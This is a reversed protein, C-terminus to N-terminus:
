VHRHLVAYSLAGNSEYFAARFCRVLYLVDCLNDVYCGLELLGCLMNQRDPQLVLVPVCSHLM